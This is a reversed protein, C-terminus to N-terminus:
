ALVWGQSKDGGIDDLMKIYHVAGAGGATDYYNNYQTAEVVTEPSGSGTYPLQKTVLTAWDQFPRQMTGNDGVIPQSVSLIRRTM